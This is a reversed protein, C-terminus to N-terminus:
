LRRTAGVVRRKAPNRMFVSRSGMSRGKHWKIKGSSQNISIFWGMGYYSPIPANMDKATDGAALVFPTYAMEQMERGLIKNNRLAVEFKVLDGLCSYINESGVLFARRESSFVISDVPTVECDHISEYDHPVLMEKETVDSPLWQLIVRSYPIFTRSMGATEFINKRMYESFTMKTIREVVSALIEYGLNFYVWESGPVCFLQTLLFRLDSQEPSSHDFHTTEGFM